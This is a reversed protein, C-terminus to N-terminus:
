SNLIDPDDPFHELLYAFQEKAEPIDHKDTKLVSVLAKRADCNDPELDIVIELQFIAYDRKGADGAAIQALLMRPKTNHPDTELYDELTKMAGAANGSDRQRKARSIAEFEADSM